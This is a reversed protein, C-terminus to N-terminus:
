LINKDVKYWCQMMTTIQYLICIFFRTFKTQIGITNKLFILLFFIRYTLNKCKLKQFKIHIWTVETKHQNTLVIQSSNKLWCCNCSKEIFFLDISFFNYRGFTKKWKKLVTAYKCGTSRIGATVWFDQNKQYSLQLPQRCFTLFSPVLNNTMRMTQSKSSKLSSCNANWSVSIIHHHHHYHHSAPINIVNATEPHCETVLM